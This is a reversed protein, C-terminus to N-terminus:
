SIANLPKYIPKLPVGLIQRYTATEKRGTDADVVPIKKFSFLLQMLKKM